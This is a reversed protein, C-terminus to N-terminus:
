SQNPHVQYIGIKKKSKTPSVNFIKIMQEQASLESLGEYYQVEFLEKRIIDRNWYDLSVIIYFQSGIRCALDKYVSEIM